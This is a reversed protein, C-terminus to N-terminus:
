RVVAFAASSQAATWRVRIGPCQLRLVCLVNGFQFYQGTWGVGNGGDLHRDDNAATTWFSRGDLRCSIWIRTGCCAQQPRKRFRTTLGRNCSASFIGSYPFSSCIFTPPNDRTTNVTKIRTSSKKIPAHEIVFTSVPFTPTRVFNPRTVPSTRGSPM